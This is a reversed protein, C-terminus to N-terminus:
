RANQLLASSKGSASALPNSPCAGLKPLARWGAARYDNVVFEPHAKLWAVAHDFTTKRISSIEFEYGARKMATVAGSDIGLMKALQKANLLKM